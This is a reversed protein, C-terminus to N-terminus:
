GWGRCAFRRESDDPVAPSLFSAVGEAQALLFSYLCEDRELTRRKRADMATSITGADGGVDMSFSENRFRSLLHDTREKDEGLHVSVLRQDRGGSSKARASKLKDKQSRQQGRSLNVQSSAGRVVVWCWCM